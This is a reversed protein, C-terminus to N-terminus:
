EGQWEPLGNRWRRYGLAELLAAYFPISRGPDGVSVDIHALPGSVPMLDAGERIAARALCEVHRARPRVLVADASAHAAGTGRLLALRARSASRGRAPRRAARRRRCPGRAAAPRSTRAGRARAASRAARGRSRRATR